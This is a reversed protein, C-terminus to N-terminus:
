QGCVLKPGESAILYLRRLHLRNYGKQNRPKKDEAESILAYIQLKYRILYFPEEDLDFEGGSSLEVQLLCEGTGCGTKVKDAVGDKDIDLNIYDNGRPPNDAYKPQLKFAKGTKVLRAVTVCLDKNEIVSLKNPEAWAPKILTILFFIIWSISNLNTLM